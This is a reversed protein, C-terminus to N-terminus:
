KMSDATMELAAIWEHRSVPSGFWATIFFSAWLGAVLVTFCGIIYNRM